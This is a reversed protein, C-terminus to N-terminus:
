AIQRSEEWSTSFDINIVLFISIEIAFTVQASCDTRDTILDRKVSGKAEITITISVIGGLIDAHGQFLLSASVIITGSDAYIEVGVVYLVSVNAVVPLGVVIQAGFGFKMKLSPGKQTDAAITLNVQGIAYVTAAALSVCMVSLRGYFELYAGATPLLKKPDTTVMLAANFYVGVKLGAELKLPTTPANYVSDPIPFKVVPIEKSAEFKYEWSDASNSMAIKLGKKLADGYKEGQLDQLVQLIDMVTQLVPSFELQPAPFAPDTDSGIFSAESGKKADFNGKIKMLREFPGLDLVISVNNLKSKWKDAVNNTFSDIDYKLKGPANQSGDNRQTKYEIYIKLFDENILFWKDPLPFDVNELQKLLKYGEKEMAGAIDKKNIQMLEWVQKGADLIPNKAFNTNLAIADGFGTVANGINPFIAKSSIMRCTDAFLPPTKSFLKGMDTVNALIKFSPTLFLIKQTDTNQLFGYNITGNTEQRVVETPNAIRLLQNTIDPVPKLQNSSKQLEGIRILPATINEPLPTVEGTDYTHTVMSWSGDKPLVVNGRAAAVFVPATGTVNLAANTDIRNIRMKQGNKGIDVSCDLPGGISGGQLSHLVVMADKSLPIGMPALQVYGRMKKAPVRGDVVGQEANEMEVDCDFEVQKVMGQVIFAAGTTVKTNGNEDTYSKGAINEITKNNADVFFQGAAVTSPVPIKDGVEVINRINFLGNIVGPHVNFADQTNITITPATSPDTSNDGVLKLKYSYDFRGDSEAKWGTDVRYVYGSGSRYLIITRVVRIGWCHIMSRVQIVEHATRGVFVDFKSQSTQAFQADPNFWNSFISSGYGSFDIRTLPVGRSKLLDNLKPKFEGNFIFAVSDGLTGTFTKAGAANLINNLQLVGGHFLPFTDTSLMGATFQLQIGGQLDNPFKYSNNEIMPPKPDIDKNLVAIAKMGFPLTFLSTTINGKENAFRDIIFNTLPIPSLPVLQVSNNFIRTPGGDNPYYNPGFPPELAPNTPNIKLPDTLNVVPEWSIQPVTFVKAFLGPSVVDMGKVQIPFQLNTVADNNVPAVAHTRMLALKERGFSAFSVGFQNANSSVDLLAFAESTFVAFVDDWIKEIEQRTNNYKAANTTGMAELSGPHNGENGAAITSPSLGSGANAIDTNLFQEMSDEKRFMIPQATNAAGSQIAPQLFAPQAAQLPAFHFSVNVADNDSAPKPLWNILSVLWLRVPRLNSAAVASSVANNFFVDRVFQYKLLGLNAAYPDPLTPLYAYMGFTLFLFGTEVKVFDDALDGFLLCGNVPTVTFLANQLALAIPKPFSAPDKPNYNDLLINDDYLAIIQLTKNVALLLMSNKSHIDMALGAVTVPRDVQPNANTLVFIAETGNAITNFIFPFSHTYSLKITSVFPNSEDKWLKYEQSCYINGAQLDTVGIRGPDALLLPNRLNVVGGELGKWQTFLGKDCQIVMGGIGEAPTPASISIMAAPVAWGSKQVPAKGSMSEFPSQCHTVAFQDPASNFPIIIRNITTNYQSPSQKDWRFKRADGYVNWQADSIEDLQRSNGSFHFQLQDPLKLEMSRADIGYPSLPDADKVNQQDLQLRVTITTTPTITIKNAILQPPTSLTIEGGKIRLGTYYGAPADSALIESKIWISGPPLQYSHLLDTVLPLNRDIFRRFLSVNFLLVPDPKGQFYLAVLKEIKYFDFWLRRGDKNLFPGITKDVAAGGAWSPVSGYIQTSRVPVERVFVRFEPDKKRAAIRESLKSLRSLREPTIKEKFLLDSKEFSFSNSKSLAAEQDLVTESLIEQLRDLNKEDERNSIQLHGSLGSLLELLANQNM